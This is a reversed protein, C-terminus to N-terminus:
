FEDKRRRLDAFVAAADADAPHGLVRKLGDHNARLFPNASLERGITSPITPEGAARQREILEGQEILAPNDPDVSRAFALNSATYEHGCWVRTEPDLRALKSLSGWMRLPTGEFLRGCGLVFLSDGTFVEREAPFHFAIHNATHGSVDIVVARADGLAISEGEALARDLKPLRAADAAGGAVKAGFRARLAEVGDVHDAHHHTIWIWDLRGGAAAVAKEIPAADPADIVATEGGPARLLYAYNDARCPIATVQIASM